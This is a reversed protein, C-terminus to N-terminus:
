DFQFCIRNYFRLALGYVLTFDLCLVDVQFSLWKICMRPKLEIEAVIFVCLGSLSINANFTANLDNELTHRRENRKRTPKKKKRGRARESHTHACFNTIFWNHTLPLGIQWCQVVVDCYVNGVCLCVCGVCCM